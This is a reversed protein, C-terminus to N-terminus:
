ALSPLPPLSFKGVPRPRDRKAQRASPSTPKTPSPRHPWEERRHIGMVVDKSVGFRKGIQILSLGEDWLRRAERRQDADLAM